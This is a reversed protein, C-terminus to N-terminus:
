LAGKDTHEQIRRDATRDRGCLGASPRTPGVSRNVHSDRLADWIVRNQPLFTSHFGILSPRTSQRSPASRYAPRAASVAKQGALLRPSYFPLTSRRPDRSAGSGLPAPWALGLLLAMSAAMAAIRSPRAFWPRTSPPLAEAVGQEPAPVAHGGKPRLGAREMLELTDPSTTWHNQLFDVVETSLDYEHECRPCAALHAEFAERQEATLDPDDALYPSILHGAKRCSLKAPGSPRRAASPIARGLRLHQWWRGRPPGSAVGAEIDTENPRLHEPVDYGKSELLEITDPTLKCHKRILDVVESSVEYEHECRRCGAVHVEFSAREHATLDPDHALYRSILRRAQRCSLCFRLRIGDSSPTVRDGPVVSVRNWASPAGDTASEVVLHWCDGMVCGAPLGVGGGTMGACAPVWDGAEHRRAEHRRAEREGNM